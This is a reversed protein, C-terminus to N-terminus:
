KNRERRRERKDTAKLLPFGRLNRIDIEATTGRKERTAKRTIVHQDETKHDSSV